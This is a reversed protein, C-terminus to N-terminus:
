EGEIKGKGKLWASTEEDRCCAVTEGALEGGLFVLGDDDGRAGVEDERREEAAGSDARELETGRQFRDATPPIRINLENLSPSLIDIEILLGDRDFLTNQISSRM